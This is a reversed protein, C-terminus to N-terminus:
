EQGETLVAKPINRFVSSGVASKTASLDALLCACREALQETIELWQYSLSSFSRLAWKVLNAARHWTLWDLSLQPHTRLGDLFVAECEALVSRSQPRRLSSRDLCALFKGADTNVGCLCMGDLDILTPRDGRLFFHTHRFSGHGLGLPESPLWALAEELRRILMEITRSLPPALQALGPLFCTDKLVDDFANRASSIELGPVTARQFAPLGVAAAAVLTRLAGRAELDGSAAQVELSRGDVGGELAEFVLAQGDEFCAVPKVTDWTAAERPLRERLAQLRPLLEHSRGGRLVKAFYTVVVGSSEVVYRFLCRRSPKYDVLDSNLVRIADSPVGHHRAFARSVWAQDAACVLGPLEYDLPFIQLLLRHQPSYGFARGNLGAFDAAKGALRQFARNTVLKECAGDHCLTGSVIMPGSAAPYSWSVICHRNPRYDFCRIRGRDARVPVGSMQQVMRAVHAPAGRRPLLEPLSPFAPDPPMTNQM